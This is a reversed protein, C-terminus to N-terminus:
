RSIDAAYDLMNFSKLSVDAEVAILAQEFETNWDMAEFVVPFAVRFEDDMQLYDTRFATQAQFIADKVDQEVMQRLIATLAENDADTLGYPTKRDGHKLTAELKLSINFVPRGDEYYAKIKRDKLEVQMTLQNEGYPFVYDINARDTKLLNLGKCAEIPIFGIVRNDNIVSYGTMAIQQNELGVCPLLIGTYTESLNELLRSTSRSFAYGLEELTQVTNEAAYGLSINKDNMKKYMAELDDRTIMTIVKKRYTEDARLRYLYEVLHDKAFDETIILSRTGSLYIPKEMQRDLDIRSESLTKGRGKVVIFKKASGGGGGNGNNQGQQIAAFELYLLVEGDKKDVAITTVILRDNIDKSDGGETLAITLLIFGVLLALKAMGSLQFKKM